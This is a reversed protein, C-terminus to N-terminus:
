IFKPDLSFGNIKHVDLYKINRKCLKIEKNM